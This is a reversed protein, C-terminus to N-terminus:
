RPNPLESQADQQIQRLTMSVTIRSSVKFRDRKEVQNKKERVLKVVWKVLGFPSDDSSWIEAKNTSRFTRNEMIKEAKYKKQKLDIGSVTVSPENASLLEVNKYHCLHSIMSYIQLVGTTIPEPSGDGIKKVGMVKGNRDTAIPIMSVFITDKDKPNDIVKSEPVLIKYIRLGSKGPIIEGEVIIGTTIKIEFWRCPVEKGDYFGKSKSLSKIELQRNWVLTETKDSTKEDGNVQTYTGNYIATVKEQKPLKRILGQASANEVGACLVCCLLLGVVRLDVKRM